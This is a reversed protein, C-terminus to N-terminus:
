KCSIDFRFEKEREAAAPLPAQAPIKCLRQEATLVQAAHIKSAPLNLLLLQSLAKKDRERPLTGLVPTSQLLLLMESEQPAHNCDLVIKSRGEAGKWQMLLIGIYAIWVM